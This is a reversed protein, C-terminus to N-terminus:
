MRNVCYDFESKAENKFLVANIMTIFATKKCLYQYLHKFSSFATVRIKSTLFIIM